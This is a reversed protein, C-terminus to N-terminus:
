IVKGPNMLGAPDLAKKVARMLELELPSKHLAIEARKLQGLGHEASISGGLADVAEYVIRSVEARRRLLAADGINYHLNGDGVHGFCFVPVGPFAAAIAADTREILEPVKSVAVSIDHKVNSFQAEPISERIAWLAKAEGENKAVVANLAAGSELAQELKARLDADSGSDGLQVLVAWASGPLPDRRPQGQPSRHALVADVCSRSLLEFASLRDGCANRLHSLLEVAGQPSAVEIWATVSATPRPHLKLVAATIVGLTGEAGIFLQKLDYGTNDKRLGRLGEWLRGDPLVAELGLVQERANGYRLVNVGGANTALNGGIQCSGEAALSLAFLRDAQAAARQVDALVCGAEVTITNNLADLERIRNMRALSLVIEPRTGTPVSGGCLGTNGGQPVIAVGAGACLRVIASVEASSAPRAVCVAAGSFQRRWDTTYPATDHDGTLVNNAGTIAALAELFSKQTM